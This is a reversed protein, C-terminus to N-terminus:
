LRLNIVIPQMHLRKREKTGLKSELVVGSYKASKMISSVRHYFCLHDMVIGELKCNKLPNM